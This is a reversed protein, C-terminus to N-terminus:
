QIILRHAQTGVKVIYMGIPWHECNITITEKSKELHMLKGMVDYIAIQEILPHEITITSQTPNPYLIVENELHLVELVGNNNANNTHAQVTFPGTGNPVRAFSMDTPLATYFIADVVDLTPTSLFLEEGDASLKFSTHLGAQLGDHGDLWVTLYEGAPFVVNPFQWKGLNNENDSLFYGDLMITNTGNNYLEVWDDYEGNQDAVASMNSAMLENIVLDSVVPLYHYEYEAREPSFVGADNNEAYIYYQMDRADVMVDIGYVGDGASGDGHMGDDFMELKTFVDQPRFRYGLHVSTANSVDVTIFPMTYPNIQLPNSSVAGIIPPTALMLAHSQLYSTRDDMLETIGITGSPGGGGVTNHINNSFDNFSYFSNADAQILSSVLSQLDNARTLYQGNSFNEELITRMHAIYMRQYTDNNLLTQILPWDSENIRILPDLQILDQVSTPGGGNNIMEFGGLCENLDWIIPNMRNNDDKILYYNQRFPGTYSDLNVLVNNFALMWLARDIDLSSELTLSNNAIDYTLNILDQWGFDSKLEYYDEYFASDIGLYELSSGNGGFVTEPNCKFRTNDPDAYFYDDQFDSNISESNVYMGHYSGNIHVEAFNSQPAVMYKRAIEYSLVERIFSPDNKGNSLKITRFGQYDQNGQIYDLSLNLPNKDNNANYTSNGKYKVGVSDKMSGNIVVSDAILRQDMGAAYYNDLIQDWNSTSFFIEITTVNTNDYLSQTHAHGWCLVLLAWVYKKIM